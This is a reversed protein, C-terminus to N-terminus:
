SSPMVDSDQVGNTALQEFKYINGDAEARLPIGYFTDVWIFGKETQIKWTSRSEILEESVKTAQAVNIWDFITDIYADDYNLDQKKGKYYCYVAECYSAATKASTDIFISDFSEPKDLAKLELAPKYKIKTGKIFFEHFDNGTEPGRYKYYVSQVKTKSKDFLQQVETSIKTQSTAQPKQQTQQQVNEAPPKQESLKQETATPTQQQACAALMLALALITLLSKGMFM